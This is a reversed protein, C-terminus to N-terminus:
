DLIRYHDNKFRKAKDLLLKAEQDSVNTKSVVNKFGESYIKKVPQGATSSIICVLNHKHFYYSEQVTTNSIETNKIRFLEGSSKDFLVSYKFRGIDKFGDKDTLAGETFEETLSANNDIEAIYDQTTKIFSEETKVTKNGCSFVVLVVILFALCNRMKSFYTMYISFLFPWKLFQFLRVKIQIM